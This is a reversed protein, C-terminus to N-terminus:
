NGFINGGITAKTKAPSVGPNELDFDELAKLEDFGDVQDSDAAVMFVIGDVAPLMTALDEPLEPFRLSGDAMGPPAFMGWTWLEAGDFEVNVIIADIGPLAVDNWEILPRAQDESVNEVLGLSPLFEAAFDLTVDDSLADENEYVVSASELEGLGAGFIIGHLRNFGSGFGQPVPVSVTAAGALVTSFAGDDLLAYTGARGQVSIEGIIALADDPMGNVEIAADTTATSWSPLQMSTTTAADFGEVFAYALPNDDTDRAIAFLDADGSADTCSAYVPVTNGATSVTTESTCGLDLRYDNAGAFQAFLVDPESVPVGLDFTEESLNVDFDDGDSLGAITQIEGGGGVLEAFVTAMGDLNADEFVATGDSSTVLRDTVAGSKSHLLVHAGAKPAGDEHVTVSVTGKKGGGGEGGTCGAVLMALALIGFARRM